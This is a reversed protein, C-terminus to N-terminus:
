LKHLLNNEISRHASCGASTIHESTANREGEKISQCLEVGSVYFFIGITCCDAINEFVINLYNIIM